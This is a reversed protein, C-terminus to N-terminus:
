CLTKYKPTFSWKTGGKVVHFLSVRDWIRIDQSSFTRSRYVGHRLRATETKKAGLSGSNMGTRSMLKFTEMMQYGFRRQIDSFAEIADFAPCLSRPCGTLFTLMEPTYVVSSLRLKHASRM